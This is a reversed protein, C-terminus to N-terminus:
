KKAYMYDALGVYDTESLKHNMGSVKNQKMLNIFEGRKDESINLEYMCVPSGISKFFAVLNNIFNDIDPDDFVLEALRAIRKPIRDKQLTFWAPYAVSLSAGHPTDYLMSLTHGIDHVGWDGSLRGHTTTGNLACTSQWLVNARYDYNEPEALVLPAFYMAEKIISATIRDTLPSDGYGFFNEFAHAILDVIGYATYNKPVSYTFQPDLFSHKPYIHESGFGIKENTAHNQMVAFANMETGTAALTLVSLLPLAKKVEVKGTMIDWSKAAAPIAASVIKATDIVSGGGLAVLVDIKNKIGLEVAADADETVPNSKIGSFETINLGSLKLADAIKAYYGYKVVSGKGYILLINKGYSKAIEGIADTVDKGFHLKVPNYAIFNEM